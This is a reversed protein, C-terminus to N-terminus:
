KADKAKAQIKMDGAERRAALIADYMEVDTCRKNTMYHILMRQAKRQRFGLIPVVKISKATVEYKTGRAVEFSLTKRECLSATQTNTYADFGVFFKQNRPRCSDAVKM